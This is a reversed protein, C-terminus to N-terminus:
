RTRPSPSQDAAGGPADAPADGTPAFHALALDRFCAAAASLCGDARRVLSLTRACDPADLRPWVIPEPVPVRRAVTPLM